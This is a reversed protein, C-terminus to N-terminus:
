INYERTEYIREINGQLVEYETHIQDLHKSLEPADKFRSGCYGCICKRSIVSKESQIAPDKAGSTTTWNERTRWLAERLPVFSDSIRDFAASEDISQNLVYLQSSFNHHEGPFEQIVLELSDANEEIEYLIGTTM